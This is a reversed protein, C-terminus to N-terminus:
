ERAACTGRVVLEPRELWRQAPVGSGPEADTEGAVHGTHATGGSHGNEPPTEGAMLRLLVDFAQQGIREKPQAVTTLPYDIQNAALDIDDYGIVSIDSPVRLGRAHCAKIAGIAAYDTAAFIATLEPSRELLQTTARYGDDVSLTGPEIWRDYDCSLGGELFARFFGDRRDRIAAYESDTHSLFGIARHGLDILHRTALYGGYVNDVGLYPADLGEAARMLQLVPVGHEKLRLYTRYARPSPSCIVGDVNRNIMRELSRDEHENSLAESNGLLIDFGEAVSREEIGHLIRSFFSNSVYPIVVGVLYTRQQVLGRALMNPRYNMEHATQRIRERMAPSIRGTGNLAASVARPSVNVAEAIDKITVRAKAM